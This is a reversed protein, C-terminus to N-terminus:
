KVGAHLRLIRWVEQVTEDREVMGRHNSNPVIVESVARDLHASRYTVFGDTGEEKPLDPNKQGMISHVTVGNRVPSDLINQLSPNDTRLSTVSNIPQNIHEQAIDTMSDVLEIDGLVSDVVNFPLKILWAGFQGIRNSAFDSGRLPAALLVARDIDRNAEFFALRRIEAREEKNLELEELNEAFISSYLRDGSNRIQMNSIIGGMSHGLIVMKRMKPNSRRPDNVKQYNALADRLDAASAAIPIGTPYNFLVIQYKERVAQDALLLNVFPLWAEATSMLGHVLVLPIKDPDYSSLTYMGLMEQYDGPRLLAALKNMGRNREYYCFSIAASFNGALPVVQGGIRVDSDVMLDQLVLNASDGDFRFSANLPFGRGGPPIMPDASRREPTDKHYGVMASGLGEQSIRKWKLGKVKLWNAPVVLDYDRPNVMGKGKALSLRWSRVSGSVKMSGTGDLGLKGVLRTVRSASYDYITKEPSQRDKALAALAGDKTLWAADLYRGLAAKPNDATLYDAQDSSMEALALRREKTPHQKYRDTLAAISAHPDRKYLRLLREERLTNRTGQDLATSSTLARSTETAEVPRDLIKVSPGSCAALGLLLLYGTSHLFLFRVMAIDM